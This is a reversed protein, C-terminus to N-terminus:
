EETIVMLKERLDKIHDKLTSIDDNIGLIDRKVTEKNSASVTNNFLTLILREQYGKLWDISEESSKIKDLLESAIKSNTKKVRKNSDM